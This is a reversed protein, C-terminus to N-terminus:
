SSLEAVLKGLRLETIKRQEAAAVALELVPDNGLRDELLRLMEDASKGTACVIFIYGFKAEYAENGKALSEIVDEGAASVGSQEGHSWKDNGAYKMRLSDIDGIKPHCAFAELWDSSELQNFAQEACLRLQNPNKIPRCSLMAQCWSESGCCARMTEIFDSDFEQGNEPTFMDNM